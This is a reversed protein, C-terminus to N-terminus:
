RRGAPAARCRIARSATCDRRRRTPAYGSSRALRRVRRPRPGRRHLRQRRRRLAGDPRRTSLVLDPSPQTVGPEAPSDLVLVRARAASRDVVRRTGRTPQRGPRFSNNPLAPELYNLDARGTSARCSDAAHHRFFTEDLTGPQLTISPPSATSRPTRTTRRRRAPHAAQRAGREAPGANPATVLLEDPRAIIPAVSGDACEVTSAFLGPAQLGAAITTSDLEDPDRQSGFDCRDNLDYTKLDGLPGCPLAPAASATGVAMPLLAAVAATAVAATFVRRTRNTMDVISEVSCVDVVSVVTARDRIPRRPGRETPRSGALM